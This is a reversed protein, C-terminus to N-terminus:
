KFQVKIENNNDSPNFDITTTYSVGQVTATIEYTGYYGILAVKGGKISNKYETHWVSKTLHTFAKGMSGLSQDKRIIDVKDKNEGQYGWFLFENVNPHSFAITMLDKTYQERTSEDSIDLTYESISITKGLEGFKNLINLVKAPPTLDTGFHAQIGIGDISKGTNQDVKKIFDYYWNIKETNHGGKNIIGYENIYRKFDPYDNKVKNYIDFIIQNSGMIGQLDVNTNVENVVDWRDILGKTKTLIEDLHLNVLSKIKKPNNKNTQYDSPLHQFGPWVLVHGKVNIGKQQIKKLLEITNSKSVQKGWFKMKLDNILVILNFNQSISDILSPKSQIDIARLGVGWNFHHRLLRIRVDGSSLPKGKLTLNLSALGKRNKEINALAIKRWSATDEIGQYVSKTKPLLNINTGKPYKLLKLNKILFQQKPYGYQLAVKFNEQSFESLIEIPYYYTKWVTSISVVQETNEEKNKSYAVVFQAKSEETEQSSKLSKGDFQLLLVEGKTPYIPKLPIKIALEWVNNVHILTSVKHITENGSKEFVINGVGVKDHNSKHWKIADILDITPKNNQSIATCTIFWAALIFIIRRDFFYAIPNSV